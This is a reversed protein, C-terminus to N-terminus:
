YILLGNEYAYKSLAKSNSVGTKSIINRRHTDATSEAIFLQEAIQKSTFGEVILNLVEKERKTLFVMENRINVSRTLGSMIINVLEDGFYYDETTITKLAEEIKCESGEMIYGNIGARFYKRIEKEKSSGSTVLIKVNQNSQKFKTIHTLTSETVLYTDLVLVKSDCIFRYKKSYKSLVRSQIVTKTDFRISKIQRIADIVEQKNCMLTLSFMTQM